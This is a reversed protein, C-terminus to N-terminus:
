PKAMQVVESAWKMELEVRKETWRPSLLTRETKLHEPETCIHVLRSAMVGLFLRDCRECHCFGIGSM